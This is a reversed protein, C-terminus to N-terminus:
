MRESLFQRRELAEYQDIVQRVYRRKERYRGPFFSRKFGYIILNRLERPSLDFADVAKIIEDTVTTHSVLRNDTCITCSLHAERM